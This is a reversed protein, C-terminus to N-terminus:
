LPPTTYQEVKAAILGVSPGTMPISPLRAPLAVANPARIAALPLVLVLTAMSVCFVTKRTASRRNLTRNLLAAFRKELTSPRAMAMAAPWVGASYRLSRAIELLHIAYTRAEVGLNIVRDDCAQESERYLRNCAIWFLPNFWYVACAIQALTQFLWDLRRVHALEHAIVIRKREEPWKDIGKPVLVQPHLVGWTMPMCEDIKQTLRIPRRCGFQIAVDRAM